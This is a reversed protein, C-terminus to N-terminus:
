IVNSPIDPSLVQVSSEKYKTCTCLMCEINCNLEAATNHNVM